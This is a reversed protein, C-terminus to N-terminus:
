EFLKVRCKNRLFAIRNASLPKTLLDAIMNETSCYKCSVLGKDIYDKVFYYRVDIHKSRRSFHEEEILKLCSQNDEYILTPSHQPQHLDELIRRIWQAEKCAESLAIFEAETSSLAVCTQRKCSWSVVGGLFKFVFGSNSKRDLRSEAWNADAYGILEECSDTRGLVLSYNATGKLYRLIRKLENWDESNPKLVKQALISVSASIDPRTNVSIYLLCGILQQYKENNILIESDDGKEYSVSIPIPSSKAESLGFNNIVKNIYKTQNIAFNGDKDRKIHLGLYNQINGLNKIPFKDKLIKECSILLENHKSAVILDDVYILIYCFKGQVSITYLCPDNQSQIYGADILVQHLVKNWVRASQKLGYLSRRLLCVHDEKGEIIFGPPQKMYITEQLDGNLFATKADLHQVILNQKAAISLLIRYTTQKVVPAFVLDYDKGFKQSFGQAVLRAKFCQISGDQNTKVKFVWKSGIAKSEHPLKCLTWTGNHELSNLEEKMAELWQDKHESELVQKISTPEVIFDKVMNIEEILRKPPIGKNIRASKRVEVTSQEGDASGNDRSHKPSESPKSDTIIIEQEEQIVDNKWDSDKHIFKVDRSIVVKRTSPIYCRYAKSNLDYGVFISEIAKSDLKRRKEDPVFTFCKSGFRRFHEISPKSGFWNQFPTTSVERSPLRNQVYNAMVVAEGWFSKELGAEIIMCRAMEILTRNKREAIGNQQPSYPATRHNQIGQAIIYNQFIKGMYEGGRDSRIVKPKIHFMTKCMEVYEKFKDFVENKEKILYIVSYRSYDDIFTVMYRKGASTSTQMPGCVDSHVLDMVHQSRNLSKQPFKLRSMKGQLCIECNLKNKCKESCKEFHIGDVLNGSELKKVVEIDRHGLISHWIHICGQSEDSQIQCIRNSARLKYLNSKLDGIAVQKQDKTIECFDKDFYVNFGLQTLRRVSILNGKVEPIYLVDSIKVTICKGFKNLLQVTLVGKGQASVQQGNAVFVKEKFNEDLEEFLDKQGSIHCTAGSDIIWEGYNIESTSFLYQIDDQSSCEALNAANNVGKSNKKALWSKYKPCDHKFHGEHKCFYCVKIRNRSSGVEKGIRLAVEDGSEMNREKRRKFEAIVKSCVLTSTLEENRAELATVLGDYSPPLSGLLTACKFFDPKIDQGLAMLKQFLENLNRLHDEINGGEDLRLRMIQRLIYVRNCPSDKEHFEKLANWAELASKCDRIHQIQSDDVNLAITTLAKQDSEMWGNTIPDPPVDTISKWCGREILLMQMKFKWNFYNDQNLRSISFKSEAM